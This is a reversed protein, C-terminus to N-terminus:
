PAAHPRLECQGDLVLTLADAPSSDAPTNMRMDVHDTRGIMQRGTILRLLVHTPAGPDADFRVHQPAGNAKHLVELSHAVRHMCHGTRYLELQFQWAHLLLTVLLLWAATRVWRAVSPYTLLAAVAVSLALASGFLYHAGKIPIFMVPLLCVFYGALYAAARRWGWRLGVMLVLAVHAFFATLLAGTSKFVWVSAEGMSPFFPYLFYVYLNDPIHRFSAAYPDAPGSQFSQNIAGARFAMYALIPLGWAMGISLWRKWRQRIDTTTFWTLLLMAPMIVGTEKSLVALMGLVPVALYAWPKPRAARVHQDAVMFTLLGFTVYLQDMLAAPWGTALTTMPNVIFILGACMATSRPLGFRLCLTYLLLGVGVTNLASMLHVGVPYKEFMLSHVGQVIFAVPRVPTGFGTGPEIHGYLQVYGAFGHRILDDVKQWEDHSFYGPNAILILLGVLGTLILTRM